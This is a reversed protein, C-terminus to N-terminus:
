LYLKAIPLIEKVESKILIYDMRVEERRLFQELTKILRRLWVHTGIAFAEEDCIVLM